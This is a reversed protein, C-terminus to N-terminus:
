RQCRPCYYTSRQGQVFARVPERCSFCPAGGRDYVMFKSQFSGAQGDGGVYDRLSSGGAGIAFELTERIKEVLVAYRALGIRRAPTKPNIGARFLAENAYINGIGAILHSDMLAQKIAASRGRTERYLWAADFEAGLPEPGINKLLPHSLVDGKRWLVLGFRRPDRLRVVAGGAMVLDLHDHREPRTTADVLWLRGSMGLHVILTGHGCDFLLYKGRRGIAHVTAGAVLQPLNRPVPQRLARCRVVATKIRRGELHPKLGRRTTEVEPLEPM